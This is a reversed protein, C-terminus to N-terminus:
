KRHSYIIYNYMYKKSHAKGPLRANYM